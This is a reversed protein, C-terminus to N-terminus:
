LEPHPFLLKNTYNHAKRKEAMEIQMQKFKFYDPRELAENQQFEKTIDDTTTM